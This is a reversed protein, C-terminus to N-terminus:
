QSLHKRKREGLLFAACDAICSRSFRRVFGTPTGRWFRKRTRLFCAERFGGWARSALIHFSRTAQRARREPARMEYQLMLQAAHGHLKGTRCRPLHRVGWSFAELSFTGFMWTKQVARVKLRRRPAVIMLLITRWPLLQPCLAFRVSLARRVHLCLHVFVSAIFAHSFAHCACTHGHFMYVFM